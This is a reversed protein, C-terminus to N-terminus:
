YPETAFRIKNPDVTGWLEVLRTEPCRAFYLGTHEFVLGTPASWTMLLAGSNDVKENYMLRDLATCVRVTDTMFVKGDVIAGIREHGRDRFNRPVTANSYSTHQPQPSTSSHPVGHSCALDAPIYDLMFSLDLISMYLGIKGLRPMWKHAIRPFWSNGDRHWISGLTTVTYDRHVKMICILVEELETFRDAGSRSEEVVDPFWVKTIYCITQSYTGLGWLHRGMKEHKDHWTRNTVNKRSLGGFDEIEKEREMCQELQEIKEALQITLKDATHSVGKLLERTRDLEEMLRVIERGAEDPNHAALRQAAIVKRVRPPPRPLLDETIEDVLYAGIPDLSVHASRADCEWHERPYNPASYYTRETNDDKVDSESFGLIKALDSNVENVPGANGDKLILPNFHHYAVYEYSHAGGDPPKSSNGLLHRYSVRRM